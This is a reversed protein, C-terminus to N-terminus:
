LPLQLPRNDFLFFYNKNLLLVFNHSLSHGFEFSLELKDLVVMLLHPTVFVKFKAVEFGDGEM